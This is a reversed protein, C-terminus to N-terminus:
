IFKFILNMVFKLLLKKFFNKFDFKILKKAFKGIIINKFCSIIFYNIFEM